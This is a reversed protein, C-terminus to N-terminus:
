LNASNITTFVESSSIARESTTECQDENDGIAMYLTDVRM